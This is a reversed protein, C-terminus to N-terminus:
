LAHNWRSSLRFLQFGCLPHGAYLGPHLTLPVGPDFSISIILGHFPRCGFRPSIENSSAEQRARWTRKEPQRGSRPSIKRKRNSGPTESREVGPKISDGAERTKILKMQTM